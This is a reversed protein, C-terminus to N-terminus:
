RQTEERHFSSFRELREQCLEHGLVSQIVNIRAQSLPLYSGREVVQNAHAQTPEIGEASSSSHLQTEQHRPLDGSYLM